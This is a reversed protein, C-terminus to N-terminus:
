KTRLTSKECNHIGGTGRGERIADRIGSDWLPHERSERRVSQCQETRIDKHDIAESDCMEMGNLSGQKRCRHQRGELFAAEDMNKLKAVSRIDAACVTEGTFARLMTSKGYMQLSSAPLDM